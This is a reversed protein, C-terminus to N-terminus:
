TRPPWTRTARRTRSSTSSRARRGPSDAPRRSGPFTRAPHLADRDARDAPRRPDGAAGRPRLRRGGGQPRQHRRVAAEVHEAGRVPQRGVPDAGAPRPVQDRGAEPDAARLQLRREGPRQRHPDEQRGVGHRTFGEQFDIKDLYAPRWDTSAIGTRTGSWPSTRAPEYNTVYYPGTALQHEGYAPPTRPTTSRRTSRRCRLASRCRCRRSSSRAGDAPRAQLRDDSRRADRHRQHGAGHDPGEDVAAEAEKFGELAGFYVRRRLRQAVGPLLGREIAYKVDASTVDRNSARAGGLPPSYRIGPRIKFTVRRTTARSRRSATQSTPRRTKSTTRSGASCPEAPDGLDGHLHVPLLRRRPRHLRRRRGRAREAHRGEQRQRTARDAAPVEVGDRQRERQQQRRLVVARARARRAARAAIAWVLKSRM